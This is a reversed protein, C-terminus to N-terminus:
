ADAAAFRSQRIQDALRRVVTRAPSRPAVEALTRGDRLAADFSSRDDPVFLCDTISAHRALAERIQAEPDRGLVGRRVRNIIVRVPGDYRDRLLDLGLILRDVGVPDAAGVVLVEDAIELVTHTVAFRDGGGTRVSAVPELGSGVDVIAIGPIERCVQWLRILAPPRLEVWREPRAIGTLIRWRDDLARAAQALTLADLTGADAHRCAVALGSVEDLIGLAVAMSGGQTDADVLLADEGSRALEDTVATAISTRGPAGHPGWVAILSGHRERGDSLPGPEDPEAHVGGMSSATSESARPSLDAEVDNVARALQGISADLDGPAIVVVRRVDLDRLTREGADDGPAVVGLVGVQSQALRAITDRALRPLSASVVAAHACGSAAAGVLDVADVCRRVVTVQAGPRGLAAVLDTEGPLGPAALVVPVTM